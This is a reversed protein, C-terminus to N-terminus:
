RAPEGEALFNFRGLHVTLGNAHTDLSRLNLELMLGSPVVM